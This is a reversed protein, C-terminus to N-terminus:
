LNRASVPKVPDSSNLPYTMWPTRNGFMDNLYFNEALYILYFSCFIM